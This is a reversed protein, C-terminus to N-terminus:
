RYKMDLLTKMVLDIKSTTVKQDQWIYYTVTFTAVAVGAFGIMVLLFTTFDIAIM